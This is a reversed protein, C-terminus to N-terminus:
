HVTGTTVVVMLCDRYAFQPLCVRVCFIQFVVIRDVFKESLFM